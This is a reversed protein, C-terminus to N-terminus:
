EGKHEALKADLWIELIEEKDVVKESENLCIDREKNYM